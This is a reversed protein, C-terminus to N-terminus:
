YLRTIMFFAGISVTMMSDQIADFLVLFFSFCYESKKITKM